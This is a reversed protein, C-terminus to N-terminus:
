RGGGAPTAGADGGGGAVRAECWASDSCTYVTGGDEQPDGTLFSEGSGCRACRQGEFREV